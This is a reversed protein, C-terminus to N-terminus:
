WKAWDPLRNYITQCIHDYMLATHVKGSMRCNISTARNSAYNALLKVAIIRGKHQEPFMYAALSKSYRAFNWFAMLDDPLWGDLNTPGPELAYKDIFKSLQKNLRLEWTKM